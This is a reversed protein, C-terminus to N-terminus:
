GVLVQARARSPPNCMVIGLFSGRADLCHFRTSCAPFCRGLARRGDKQVRAGRPLPCRARQLRLEGDSLPGAFAGLGRDLSRGGLPTTVVSRIAALATANERNPGCGVTGNNLPCRPGDFCVLLAHGARTAPAWCGFLVPWLREFVHATHSVPESERRLLAAFGDYLARPHRRIRRASVVFQARMNTIWHACPGGTLLSFVHCLLGGGKQHWERKAVDDPYSECCTHERLPMFGVTSSSEGSASARRSEVQRFSLLDAADRPGENQLFWTMSDLTDYRTRIHDVYALAERGVNVTRHVHVCPRAQVPLAQHIGCDKLHLHINFSECPLKDIWGLDLERCIPVVVGVKKMAGLMKVCPM